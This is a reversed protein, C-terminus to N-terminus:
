FASFDRFRRIRLFLKFYATGCFSAKTRRHKTKAARIIPNKPTDHAARRPPIKESVASSEIKESAHSFKGQKRKASLNYDQYIHKPCLHASATKGFYPPIVFHLCDVTGFTGCHKICLYVHSDERLFFALPSICREIFFAFRRKKVCEFFMGICLRIDHAKCMCYNIRPEAGFGHYMVTLYDDAFRSRSPKEPLVKCPPDLRMGVYGFVLCVSILGHFIQLFAHLLEAFLHRGHSVAM